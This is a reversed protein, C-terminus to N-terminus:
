LRKVRRITVGSGPPLAHHTGGIVEHKGLVEWTCFFLAFLLSVNFLLRVTNVRAYAVVPVYVHM